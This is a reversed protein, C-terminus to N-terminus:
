IVRDMDMSFGEHNDPKQEHLMQSLCLIQMYKRFYEDSLRNAPVRSMFDLSNEQLIHKARKAKDADM